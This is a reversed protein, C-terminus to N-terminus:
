RRRATKVLAPALIREAEDASFSETRKGSPTDFVVLVEDQCLLASVIEATRRMSTKFDGESSEGPLSPDHFITYANSKEPDGKYWGKQSSRSAAYLKMAKDKPVGRDILAFTRVARVREDLTPDSFRDPQTKCFGKRNEPRKGKNAGVFFTASVVPADWEMKGLTRRPATKRKTPM